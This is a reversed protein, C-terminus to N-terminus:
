HLLHASNPPWVEPEIFNPVNEKLLAVTKTSRHYPARHAGIL